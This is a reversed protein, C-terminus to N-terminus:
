AQVILRLTAAYRQPVTSLSTFAIECSGPGLNRRDITLAGGRSLSKSFSRDDCRLEAQGRASGGADPEVRITFTVRRGPGLLGFPLTRTEGAAIVGERLIVLPPPAAPRAPVGDLDARLANRVATDPPSLWGIKYPAQLHVQAYDEAFIEGIAHSWGNGYDRVVEGSAVLAEM